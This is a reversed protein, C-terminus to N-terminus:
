TTHWLICDTNITSPIYLNSHVAPTLFDVRADDTLGGNLFVTPWKFYGVGQNVRIESVHIDSVRPKM